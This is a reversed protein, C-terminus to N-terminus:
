QMANESPTAGSLRNVNERVVRSSASFADRAKRRPNVSDTCLHNAPCKRRALFYSRAGATVRERRVWGAPHPSVSM